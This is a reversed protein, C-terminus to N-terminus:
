LKLSLDFFKKELANIQKRIEEENPVDEKDLIERIESFERPLATVYTSSWSDKDEIRQIHSKIELILSAVEALPTKDKDDAHVSMCASLGILVLVVLLVM